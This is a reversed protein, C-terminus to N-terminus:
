IKSLNFYITINIYLNKFIIEIIQVIYHEIKYM